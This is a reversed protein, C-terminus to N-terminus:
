APWLDRVELPLMKKVDEIEGQTVRNYLVKFTARTAIEADILDVQPMASHVHELFQELHRERTPQKSPKWGDYYMGCLVVPLQAGLDIVEDATLRDRLAHLVGRLASYAQQEDRMSGAEVLEHLWEHTLQLTREIAPVHSQTQVM